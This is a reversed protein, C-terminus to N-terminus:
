TVVAPDVIFIVLFGHNPPPSFLEELLVWKAGLWLAAERVLQALRNGTPAQVNQLHQLQCWRRVRIIFSIFHVYVEDVNSSFFHFDGYDHTYRWVM